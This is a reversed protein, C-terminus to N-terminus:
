NARELKWNTYAKAVLGVFLAVIIFPSVHPIGQALSSAVAEYVAGIALVPIMVWAANREAMAEHMEEREDKKMHFMIDLVDFMMFALWGATAYIRVETSWFPLMQFLLFPAFLLALYLWGEKTKPTLGWGSYKRREFWEPKGFM